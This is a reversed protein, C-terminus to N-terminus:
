DAADRLLSGAEGHAAPDLLAREISQRRLQTPTRGTYRRIDRILHAQDFFTAMMQDHLEEGMAPNALLMAARLARFRKLIQAPPVGFFRRAIRQAQRPSMGLGGYLEELSPDFGSVLWALIAEVVAVHDARLPHRGAAAAAGLTACLAEPAIEGAHCAAAAAELAAVQAPGLVSEPPVLQDHVQDAPLNALRQWALHTLSAGVVTVPGELACDASRMQPANLTVTSSHARTGDAYSIALRGRVVVVLQASYAPIAEEILPEDTEITYFSHVHEAAAAPPAIIKTRFTVWADGRIGSAGRTITQHSGPAPLGRLSKM